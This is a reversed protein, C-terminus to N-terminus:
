EEHDKAALALLRDTYSLLTGKESEYLSRDLSDDIDIVRKGRIMYITLFGIAQSPGIVFSKPYNRSLHIYACSM